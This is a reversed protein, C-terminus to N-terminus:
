HQQQREKGAVVDDACDSYIPEFWVETIVIFDLQRLRYRVGGALRQVVGAEIARHLLFQTFALTGFLALAALALEDLRQVVHRQCQDTREVDLHHEVPKQGINAANYFVVRGIDHEHMFIPALAYTARDTPYGCGAVGSNRV